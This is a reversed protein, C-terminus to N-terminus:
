AILPSRGDRPHVPTIQFRRAPSLPTQVVRALLPVDRAPLSAEIGIRGAERFWDWPRIALHRGAVQIQLMRQLTRSYRRNSMRTPAVCLVYVSIPVGFTTIVVALIHHMIYSASLRSNLIM